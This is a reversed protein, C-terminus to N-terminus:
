WDSDGDDYSDEIADDVGDAYDRDRNYRDMDFDDDEFIDDYGTDYSDMRM